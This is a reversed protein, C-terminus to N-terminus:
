IWSSRWRSTLLRFTKGSFDLDDPLSDHVYNDETISEEGTSVTTEAQTDNGAAPKSDGCSVTLLLTGLLALIQLAQLKM